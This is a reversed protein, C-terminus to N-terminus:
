DAYGKEPFFALQLAKPYVEFRIRNGFFDEGDYNGLLQFSPDTSTIVGSTARYMHIEKNGEHKGFKYLLLLGLAPLLKVDDVACVDVIGDTIDANPAPNFGDGYFKANCISILTYRDFEGEVTTKDELELKYRFNHARKGLVLKIASRIYATQRNFKTDNAAVIAKAAYQVQTDLGISAVNIMYKSWNSLHNGMVDYSDIKILDIPKIIVKDLNKLLHVFDWKKWTPLTTKVFDNGTGFPMCIMVTKRFALANAIEHITGDGGCAVIVIKSGFQDSAEVAIDAAHGPYDTYRMEIRTRLDPDTRSVANIADDLAALTKPNSRRNIILLYRM